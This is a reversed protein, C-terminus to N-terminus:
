NIRSRYQAMAALTQRLQDADPSDPARTLYADLDAIAHTFQMLKARVLGRDRLLDLEGPAVALMWALIILAKEWSQGQLYIGRLNNLLRFLLARQSVPELHEDKLEVEEGYLDKLRADCDERTLLLGQHFPDIFLERGRDAHRLLFHGPLGVGALPVGVRAAVDLYVVSLTIPIGTRRDLVDNLFSNRPDYYDERNGRFGLETFLHHNLAELAAYVDATTALRAAVTRAMQELQVFYPQPDLSPYETSAILFAAETLPLQEESQQLLETFQELPQKAPSGM